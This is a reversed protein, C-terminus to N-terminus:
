DASTIRKLLEADSLDSVDEQKEEPLVDDGQQGRLWASEQYIERNTPKKDEKLKADIWFMLDQNLQRVQEKEKETDINIIRDFLNGKLVKGVANANAEMAAEIDPIMDIPYPNNIKDIAWRLDNDTISRNVYRETLLKKIATGRDIGFSAVSFVVDMMKASGNPESKTPPDNFSDRSYALWSQQDLEETGSINGLIGAFPDGEDLRSLVIEDPKLQKNMLKVLFDENVAMDAKKNLDFVLRENAKQINEIGKVKANKESPLMQSNRVLEKAEDYRAIEPAVLTDALTLDRNNELEGAKFYPQGATTTDLIIQDSMMQEVTLGQKALFEFRGSYQRMTDNRNFDLQKRRYTTNVGALNREKGLIANNRFQRAARSSMQGSLRQIETDYLESIRKRENWAQNRDTMIDLQAKELEDSISKNLDAGASALAADDEQKQKAQGIQFLGEGVGVLAQGVAGGAVDTTLPTLAESQVSPLTRRRFKPLPPM